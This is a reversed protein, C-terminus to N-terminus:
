TTGPQELLRNISEGSLEDKPLFGQIPAEAIRSAYASQDRSSALVVKPPRPLAALQRAVEFGDIGTGLHVDLLVCDPHLLRAAEVASEGDGAEGVVDFGEDDLMSRVFARFPEHDDVILITM